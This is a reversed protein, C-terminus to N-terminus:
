FTRFTGWAGRDTCLAMGGDKFPDDLGIKFFSHGLLKIRGWAAARCRKHELCNGFDEVPVVLSYEDCM